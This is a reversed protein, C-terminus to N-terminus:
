AKYREITKEIINTLRSEASYDAIQEEGDLEPIVLMWGCKHNNHKNILEISTEDVSDIIECAQKFTTCLHKEGGDDIFLWGELLASRIVQNLITSRAMIQKGKM